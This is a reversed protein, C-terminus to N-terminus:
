NRHAEQRVEQSQTVSCCATFDGTDTYKEEQLYIVAAPKTHKSCVSLPLENFCPRFGPPSSHTYSSLHHWLIIHQVQGGGDAGLVVFSERKISLQHGSFQKSQSLM